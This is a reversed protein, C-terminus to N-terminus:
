SLLFKRKRWLLMLFLVVLGRVGWTRAEGRWTRFNKLFFLLFPTFKQLYKKEGSYPATLMPVLELNFPLTYHRYFSRRTSFEEFGFCSHQSGFGSSRVGGFPLHPHGYSIVAENM